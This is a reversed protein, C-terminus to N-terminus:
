GGQEEERVERERELYNFLDQFFFFTSSFLIRLKM